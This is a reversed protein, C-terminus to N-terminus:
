QSGCFPVFLVFPIENHFSNMQAEQAKKHSNSPQHHNDNTTAIHGTAV